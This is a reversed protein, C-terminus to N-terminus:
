HTKHTKWKLYKVVGRLDLWPSIFLTTINVLFTAKIEQFPKILKMERDKDIWVKLLTFGYKQSVSYM